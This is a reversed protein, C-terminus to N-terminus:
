HCLSPAGGNSGGIYLFSSFFTFRTIHILFDVVRGLYFVHLQYIEMYGLKNRNSAFLLVLNPHLGWTNCVDVFSWQPRCIPRMVGGCVWGVLIPSFVCMTGCVGCWTCYVCLLLWWTYYHDFSTRSCVPLNTCTRVRVPESFRYDFIFGAQNELQILFWFWIAKRRIYM